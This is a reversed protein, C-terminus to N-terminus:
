AVEGLYCYLRVRKSGNISPDLLGIAERDNNCAKHFWRQGLIEVTEAKHTRASPKLPAEIKGFETIYINHVVTVFARLMIEGAESITM